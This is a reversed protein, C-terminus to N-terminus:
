LNMGEAWWFWEVICDMFLPWQLQDMTGLFYGFSLHHCLGRPPKQTGSVILTASRSSGTTWWHCKASTWENMWSVSMPCSTYASSLTSTKKKPWVVPIYMLIWVTIANPYAVLNLDLGTRQCEARRLLRNAKTLGISSSLLHFCGKEAFQFLPISESRVHCIAPIYHSNLTQWDCGRSTVWM